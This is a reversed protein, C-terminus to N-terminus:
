STVKFHRPKGLLKIQNHYAFNECVFVFQFLATVIIEISQHHDFLSTFTQVCVDLGPIQKLELTHTYSCRQPLKDPNNASPTVPVM